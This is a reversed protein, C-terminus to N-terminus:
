RPNENLPKFRHIQCLNETAYGLRGSDDYPLRAFFRRMHFAPDLVTGLYEIFYPKGTFLRLDTGGIADIEKALQYSDESLEWHVYGSTHWKSEHYDNQYDRSCALRDRTYALITAQEDGLPKIRVRRMHPSIRGAQLKDLFTKRWSEFDPPIWDAPKAYTIEIRYAWDLHQLVDLDEWAPSKFSSPIPIECSPTEKLRNLHKLYTECVAYGKGSNGYSCSDAYPNAKQVDDCYGYKPKTVGPSTVPKASSQAWVSASHGAFVMTVTACVMAYRALNNKHM